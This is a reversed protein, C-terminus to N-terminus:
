PCLEDILSKLYRIERHMADLRTRLEINRRELFTYESMVLGQESRKKLRYRLAASKNQEKKRLRRTNTVESSTRRHKRSTGIDETPEYEVVIWDPSDTMLDQFDECSITSPVDEVSISEEYLEEYELNLLASDPSHPDLRGHAATSVCQLTDADDPMKYVVVEDGGCSDGDECSGVGVMESEIVDANLRSYTSRNSDVSADADIIRNIEYFQELSVLGSNLCSAIDDILENPLLEDFKDEVESKCLDSYMESDSLCLSVFM